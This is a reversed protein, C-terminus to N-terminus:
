RNDFLLIRSPALSHIILEIISSLPRILLSEYLTDLLAIRPITWADLIVRYARLTSMLEMKGPGISLTIVLFVNDFSSNSFIEGYKTFTSSM